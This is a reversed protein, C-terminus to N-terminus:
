ILPTILSEGVPNPGFIPGSDQPGQPAQSTNSGTAPSAIRFELTPSMSSAGHFNVARAVAAGTVGKLEGSGCLKRFDAARLVFRANCTGSVRWGPKGPIVHRRVFVNRRVVMHQRAFSGTGAIGDPGLSDRCFAVVQGSLALDKMGGDRDEGLAILVVSDAPGLEISGSQEGTFLVMRKGLGVVDLATFPPTADAVPIKVTSRACGGLGSMILAATAALLASRGM